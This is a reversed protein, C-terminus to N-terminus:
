VAQRGRRRRSVGSQILAYQVAGVSIGCLRGVESLTKGSEYYAKIEAWMKLNRPACVPLPCTLHPELRYLSMLQEIEPCIKFWEGFVRHHHLEAHLASEEDRGGNTAAEIVLPCPSANQLAYLRTSLVMSTHGIKVRGVERATAFYIM